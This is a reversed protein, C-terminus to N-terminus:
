GRILRRKTLSTLPKSIDGRIETVVDQKQKNYEESSFTKPIEEKIKKLLEEMDNAFSRGFGQPLKIIRPQDPYPFNYVYCWDYTQYQIGKANREEIFRELRSKITSAKGTGTLGTLFLNYGTREVELGFKISGLAREQGIFEKLPEIDTTCEFPFLDQSCVWRLKEFPVVYANLDVPDKM